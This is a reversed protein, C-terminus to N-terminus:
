FRLVPPAAVPATEVTTSESTTPITVEVAVPTAEVAVEEPEEATATVAPAEAAEVKVTSIRVPVRADLERQLSGLEERLQKILTAQDSLLVELRALRTQFAGVIKGEVAAKVKKAAAKKTVTKKVQKKKAAM